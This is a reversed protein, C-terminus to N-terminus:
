PATGRVDCGQASLFAKLEAVSYSGDHVMGAVLAADAGEGFASALHSPNGAGGSAVVPVTVAKAVSQLLELHYGSRQGDRDISTLLIEGAGQAVADCAWEVATRTTPKKGGHSYVRFAGDQWLADISVVVCQSGFAEALESILSPRRLAASNVAIKDAGSRLAKQGDELSSIGGGL